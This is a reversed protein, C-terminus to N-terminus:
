PFVFAPTPPEDLGPGKRDKRAEFEAFLWDIIEVLYADVHLRGAARERAIYAAARDPDFVGAANRAEAFQFAMMDSARQYGFRQMGDMDRGFRREVTRALGDYLELLQLREDLTPRGIILLHRIRKRLNEWSADRGAAAIDDRLTLIADAASRDPEDPDTM